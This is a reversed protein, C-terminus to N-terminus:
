EVTYKFYTSWRKGPFDFGAGWASTTREEGTGTGPVFTGPITVSTYTGVVPNLTGPISAAAPYFEIEGTPTYGIPWLVQGGIAVYVGDGVTAPISALPVVVIDEFMSPMEAQVHTITQGDIIGTDPNSASVYVNVYDLVWDYATLFSVVLDEGQIGITVTGSPYVGEALLDVSTLEGETYVWEDSTAGGATYAGVFTAVYFTDGPQAGDLPFSASWPAEGPKGTFKGVNPNGTKNQPIGDLSAAAHLKADTLEWAPSPDCTVYVNEADNYVSVIGVVTGDKAVLTTLSAAGACTAFVLSALSLSLITKM